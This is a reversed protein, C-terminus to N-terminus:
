ADECARRARRREPAGRRDRRRGTAATRMAEAIGDDVSVFERLGIAVAHAAMVPEDDNFTLELGPFVLMGYTRWARAAEREVEALYAPAVGGRGLQLRLGGRLAM